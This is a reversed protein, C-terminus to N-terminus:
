LRSWASAGSVTKETLIKEEPESLLYPRFKRLSRLWHEWRELAPDALLEEVVEDDLAALELGFFLLRTDLAAGKETLRAVLASRAPDAMDTAYALHAFTMARAFISEIREREEIAAALESADLTAVSGHYRARFAEAAEEAERLDTELKPDDVGAYLDSLDWAVDEAGTLEVSAM